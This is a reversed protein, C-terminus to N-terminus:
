EGFLSLQGEEGEVFNSVGVGLLRYRGGRQVLERDLVRQAADVVDGSSAVLGPGTASRTLTTFDSLRLKVTVTRGRSGSGQLRSGVREGLRRLSRSLEQPDGVDQPFTTEASISKAVRETAVPRDDVGRAMLGLELGRQGMERELWADSRTALDGLTTVGKELLRQETKPGIGSLKRVPLPALFDRATGPPVVKLGDPKDMDSAIKAASKTPGVGLSITLGVEGKVREKIRRATEVPDTGAVETIELYAEDISVQQLVPSVGRLITMVRQSVERYRDFRPPVVVAKPCLGVATRMPMASHIGFTRAEYSCAAVVGRQEPRGGVLVPRGQLAPNDMQEIAAFFADLDAHIVTRM